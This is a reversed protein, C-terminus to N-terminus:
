RTGYKEGQETAFKAALKALMDQTMAALDFRPSWGWETRAITDDLHRPWSEAIAQRVPDVAYTVTFGPLV